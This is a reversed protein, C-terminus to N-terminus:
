AGVAVKKRKYVNWDIRRKTGKRFIANENPVGSPLDHARVFSPVHLAVLPIMSPRGHACMFPFRTRSLQNVLRTCQDHSLRDQFMIAGRCAKSNALELMERPMYRLEHGWPGHVEQEGHEDQKEEEAQVRIENIRREGPEKTRELRSDGQKAEIVRENERDIGKTGETGYFRLLTQVGDLNERLAALYGRVLRNMEVAEQKGLRGALASPVRQVGIQLYEGETVTTESPPILHVGWRRFVDLVGPRSLEEAEYRTLLIMPTSKTPKMTPIDDRRFGSCLASLISEVSVREDAAHQDILVIVSKTLVQTDTTTTAPSISLDAPLPLLVAVYKTDVQGIIQARRLSAKTLQVNISTTHKSLLDIPRKLPGEEVQMVSSHDGLDDAEVHHHSRKSHGTSRYMTHVGSSPLVGPDIQKQLDSIWQYRKRGSADTFDQDRDIDALCHKDRPESVINSSTFHTGIRFPSSPSPSTIVPPPPCTDLLTTRLTALEHINDNVDNVILSPTPDARLSRFTSPSPRTPSIMDYGNAMSGPVVEKGLPSKGHMSATNASPDLRKLPSLMHPGANDKTPSPTATLTRTPAYGNRKLYEDVVALLMARVAGLDKYGLVGKRPEYSVDVENPPLTINLVFIPYRELRRPSQRSQPTSYQMDDHEGSTAYTAFRSNAFQKSIALHLDGREVPYNNVYLHQHVKSVDGSLSIFGDVRRLGASVRIKQVRRTLASGFLTRFVDLSSKTGSISLLKRQGAEGRGGMGIGRDQWLTWDIGPNGMALTEVVKKCARLLTEESIRAFEERRVPISHFIDKVEVRTGHSGHVSRSPHVGEYVTKSSKVVKTHSSSSSSTRSTISLLALSAISAIAEGRFGYSGISGLGSDNLTRSTRFRKGIKKLGEPDVGCGDDVVRISEFGKRLDITVEVKKCGSDLSNQVLESLIQPFTPIVLTSRLKTSTPTPLPTIYSASM